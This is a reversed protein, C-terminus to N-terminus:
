LNGVMAMAAQTRGKREGLWAGTIGLALSGILALSVQTTENMWGRNIAVAVFFGVGLVIAIGGVLAM